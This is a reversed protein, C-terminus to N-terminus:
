SQPIKRPQQFCLCECFSPPPRTFPTVCVLGTCHKSWNVDIGIGNWTKSHTNAGLALEVGRISETVLFYRLGHFHSFELGIGDHRKSM